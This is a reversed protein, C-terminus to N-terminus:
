LLDLDERFSGWVQCIDSLSGVTISGSFISWLSAVLSEIFCLVRIKFPTEVLCYTQLLCHLFHLFYWLNNLMQQRIIYCSWKGSSVLKVVIFDSIIECISQYMLSCMQEDCHKCHRWWTEMSARWTHTNCGWCSALCQTSLHPSCLVTERLLSM